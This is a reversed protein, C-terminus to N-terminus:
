GGDQYVVADGLRVAFGELAGNWRHKLYIELPVQEGGDTISCIFSDSYSWWSGKSTVGDVTVSDRGQAREFEIAHNEYRALSLKRNKAEKMQVTVVWPSAETPPPPQPPEERTSPPSMRAVLAKAESAPEYFLDHREIFMQLLRTAADREGPRQLAARIRAVLALQEDMTLAPARVRENLESLYSMPVAPPAPLPVPLPPAEPVTALAGALKFASEQGATTFEILQLTALEPPLMEPDIPEIAVPILPKGLQRAYEL